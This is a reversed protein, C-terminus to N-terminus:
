PLDKESLFRRSFVFFLVLGILVGGVLIYAEKFSIYRSLMLLLALILVIMTAIGGQLGLKFLRRFRYGYSLLIFLGVVSVGVLCGMLTVLPRPNAFVAKPNRALRMMFNMIRRIFFKGKPKAKAVNALQADSYAFKNAILKWLEEHGNDYGLAWIGIGGIKKKKVLEYKQSLTATDEFWIQHYMDAPDRYAYYKSVSVDDLVGGYNGTLDKVGRYTHFKLFAKAPSPFTLDNTLWESGYYPVGLLLKKPTVGTTLYADVSKEVNLAMWKNGSGLPAIPGATKSFIGHYEYGMIVFLDVYRDLQSLNFSQSFDVPPLAITLLYSSKETKLSTSLDILFNTLLDKCKGPVCEFDINVGDGNRDKLLTIINKIFNKQAAKNTLFKINNQTNFNTVTLVVKCNHAHASDLLATTNWNHISYYDGTQPNLEYSFYAIVSLLSFNYSKFASGMWFPHWGFVKYSSDLLHTQKYAVQNTILYEKEWEKETTFKKKPVQNLIGDCIGEISASDNPEVAIVNPIIVISDPNPALPKKAGEAILKEQEVKKQESKIKEAAAKKGKSSSLVNNIESIVSEQANLTFVFFLASVILYIKKV